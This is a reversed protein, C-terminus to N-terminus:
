QVPFNFYTDPFPENKMTFHWWEEKLPIFGNKKMLIQLLMRNSRQEENIDMSFPWSLVSFFDYDTGMDLAKNDKISVISLDITSGRSHGSRSAIYGKAFLDKKPIDPYYKEKMRNDKNKSWQIFHDVAMQPRYADFIILGLGFHRLENQVIKLSNAADITLICKPATYGNISEGVFNNSGHYRMDLIIDPIMEKVYVFGEPLETARVSFLALLLICSIINPRMSINISFGRM